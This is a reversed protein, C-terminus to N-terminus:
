SVRHDMARCPGPAGRSRHLPTRLNVKDQRTGDFQGPQGNCQCMIIPLVMLLLDSILCICAGHFFSSPDEAADSSLSENAAIEAYKISSRVRSVVLTREDVAIRRPFM